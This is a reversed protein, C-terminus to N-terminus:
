IFIDSFFNHPIKALAVLLRAIVRFCTTFTILLNSNKRSVNPWPSTMPGLTTAISASNFEADLLTRELPRQPGHKHVNPSFVLHFCTWGLLGQQCEGTSKHYAELQNHDICFKIRCRFTYKGLPITSWIQPLQTCISPSFLNWGTIRASMRRHVQSLARDPQSPYPILNQMSHQGNWPPNHVM